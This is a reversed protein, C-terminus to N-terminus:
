GFRYFISKKILIIVADVIGCADVIGWADVADVIGWDLVITLRFLFSSLM